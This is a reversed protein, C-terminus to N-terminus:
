RSGCCRRASSSWGSGPRSAAGTGSGAARRARVDCDFLGVGSHRYDYDLEGRPALYTQAVGLAWLLALVARRMWQRHGEEKGGGTHRTLAYILMVPFVSFTSALLSLSIDYLASGNPVDRSLEPIRRIQSKQAATKIAAVLMVLSLLMAMSLFSSVIARFAHLIRGAWGSNPGTLPRHKQHGGGGGGHRSARKRLHERLRWVTFAVLYM